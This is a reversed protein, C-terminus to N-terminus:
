DSVKKVKVLEVKVILTFNCILAQMVSYMVDCLATFLVACHGACYAHMATYLAYKLAHALACNLVRQPACHQSYHPAFNLPRLIYSLVCNLVSYFM